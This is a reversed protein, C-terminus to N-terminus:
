DHPTKFRGYKRADSSQNTHPVRFLLLWGTCCDTKSYERRYATQMSQLIWPVIALIIYSIVPVTEYPIPCAFVLTAGQRSSNRTKPGTVIRQPPTNNIKRGSEGSFSPNIFPLSLNMAIELTLPFM